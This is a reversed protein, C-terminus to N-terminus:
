DSLGEITIVTHLDIRHFLRQIYDDKVNIIKLEGDRDKFKKQFVILQALGASDIFYLDTFDVEVIQYEKNYVTNLAEKFEKSNTLDIREPTKVVPNEGSYDIQCTM